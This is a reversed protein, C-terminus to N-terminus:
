QGLKEIAEGTKRVGKGVTEAGKKLVGETKDAVKEGAQKTKEWGEEMVAETKDLNRSTDSKMGKWTGSCASLGFALLCLAFTKKM